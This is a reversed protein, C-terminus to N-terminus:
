FGFSEWSDPEAFDRYNVLIEENAKIDKLAFINDKCGGPVSESANLECGANDELQEGTNMYIGEDLDVCINMNQTEKPQTVKGGYGKDRDIVYAWQLVDCALERPLSMLFERYLEGKKFCATQRTNWIVSGKPVAEKAYIGRGRLSHYGIYYPIQIGHEYVLPSITSESVGVIGHYLGRFLMWTSENHIPRKSEFLLSCKFYHWFDGTGYSKWHEELGKNICEEEGVNSSCQEHLSAYVHCASLLISLVIIQRLRRMLM